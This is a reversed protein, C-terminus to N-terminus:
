QSLKVGLWSRTFSWDAEVTKLSVNLVEATEECTLGGFFRLEVIRAKRADLAELEELAEEVTLLDVQGDPSDTAVNEHFSIKLRDGGRKQAGRSRAYERLTRRMIQSAIAIFHARDAWDTRKQDILRIYAEHVLATPTLTHGRRESRAFHAALRKLEEYVAETLEDVRSRDGHRTGLLIGTTREKAQDMVREM